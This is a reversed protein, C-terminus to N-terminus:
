SEQSHAIADQIVRAVHDDTLAYITERGSKTATVLNIGRLLRLHQSVLPQSLQTAGVLASVSSPADALASLILLRSTASLAKFLEAAGSLSKEGAM